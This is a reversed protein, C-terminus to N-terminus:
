LSFLTKRISALFRRSILILPYVMIARIATTMVEKKRGSQTLCLMWFTFREARFKAFRSGFTKMVHADKHLCEIMFTDRQIVKEPKITFISRQDHGVVSTTVQNSYYLKFRSLLRIWLEWDEASALVRNEEFPFQMAIDHRVFVGNCSLVNDFLVRTSIGDDFNNIVRVVNGDTTKFDYGLHFFEPEDWSRIMEMAHRLHIPYMLDDSDFYNIYRGRALRAGYNRAAGREGNEKGQYFFRHDKIEALVSRTDDTSGDDVVIIEFDAFEQDLVSAVAAAVQRARNYTPIVVSFYPSPDSNSM